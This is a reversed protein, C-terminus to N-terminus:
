LNNRFTNIIIVLISYSNPITKKIMIVVEFTMIVVEFTMIVVEFTMIVM